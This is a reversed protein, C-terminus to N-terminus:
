PTTGDGTFPPLADARIPCRRDIFTRHWLELNLLSWIADGGEAEGAAHAAIVLALLCRLIRM